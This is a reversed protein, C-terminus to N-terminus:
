IWTHSRVLNGECKGLPLPVWARIVHIYLRIKQKKLYREQRISWILDSWDSLWTRSKEVGHIAARWADRDMVLERLESMSVDMSDTIGDLWRMRQRGRRRKGGIGGLMQCYFFGSKCTCKLNWNRILGWSRKRFPMHYFVPCKTNLLVPLLCAKKNLPKQTPWHLSPFMILQSAQSRFLNKGVESIDFGM